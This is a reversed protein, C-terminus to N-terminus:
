KFKQSLECVIRSLPLSWTVIFGIIQNFTMSFHLDMYRSDEGQPFWFMVASLYKHFILCYKEMHFYHRKWYNNIYGLYVIRCLSVSSILFSFYVINFIYQLSISMKILYIKIQYLKQMKFSVLKVVSHADILISHQM